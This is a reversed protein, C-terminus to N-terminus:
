MTVDWQLVVTSNMYLNKTGKRLIDNHTPWVSIHSYYTYSVLFPSIYTFDVILWPSLCVRFIHIWFSLEMRFYWWIFIFMKDSSRKFIYNLNKVDIAIKDKLGGWLFRTNSETQGSGLMQNCLFTRSSSKTEWIFYCLCLSIPRSLDCATSSIIKRDM